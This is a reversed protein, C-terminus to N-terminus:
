GCRPNQGLEIPLDRITEARITALEEWCAATQELDRIMERQADRIQHLQKIEDLLDKPSRLGLLGSMRGVKGANFQIEILHSWLLEAKKEWVM